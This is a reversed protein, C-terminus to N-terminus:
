MPKYVVGATNGSRRLRAERVLQALYRTATADSTGLLKQVDDNTIKGKQRALELIKDLKKRKRFQIKALAKQLLGTLSSVPASIPPEVQAEAQEPMQSPAVPSQDVERPQGTEPSQNAEQAPSTDSLLDTTTNDATKNETQPSIEESM